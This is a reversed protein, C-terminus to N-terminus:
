DGHCSLQCDNVFSRSQAELVFTRFSPSWALSPKTRIKSSRESRRSSAASLFYLALQIHVLLDRTVYDYSECVMTRGCHPLSSVHLFCFQNMEDFERLLWLCSSSFFSAQGILSRHRSKKIREEERLSRGWSPRTNQSSSAGNSRAWVSEALGYAYAGQTSTRSFVVEVFTEDFKASECKESSIVFFSNSNEHSKLWRSIQLRLLLSSSACRAGLILLFVSWWDGDLKGSAFDKIEGM